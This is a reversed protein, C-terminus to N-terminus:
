GQILLRAKTCRKERSYLLLKWKLSSLLFRLLRPIQYLGTLKENRRSEKIHRCYIGPTPFPSLFLDKESERQQNLSVMSFLLSFSPVTRILWVKKKKRQSCWPAFLSVKRKNAREKQSAWTSRTVALTSHMRTAFTEEEKLARKWSKKRSCLSVFARHWGSRTCMPRRFNLFRLFKFGEMKISVSDILTRLYYSFFPM